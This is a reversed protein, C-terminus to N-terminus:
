SPVFHSLQWSAAVQFFARKRLGAGNLALESNAIRVKDDLKVGAVEAAFAPFAISLLILFRSLKTAM